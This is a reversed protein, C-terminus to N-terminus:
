FGFRFYSGSLVCRLAVPLWLPPQYRCSPTFAFGDRLSRIITALCTTGPIVNLLSDTGYPVTHHSIAGSCCGAFADLGDSYGGIMGYGVPRISLQRNVPVFHRAVMM